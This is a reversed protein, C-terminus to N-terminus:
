NFNEWVNAIARFIADMSIKREKGSIALGVLILLGGIVIDIIYLTCALLGLAWSIVRGLGIPLLGIIERPELKDKGKKEM